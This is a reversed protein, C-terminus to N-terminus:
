CKKKSVKIKSNSYRKEFEIILGLGMLVLDPNNKHAYLFTILLERLETVQKQNLKKM